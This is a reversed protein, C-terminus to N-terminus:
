AERVLVPQVDYDSHGAVEPSAADLARLAAEDSLAVDIDHSVREADFQPVDAGTLTMSKVATLLQLLQAIQGVPSGDQQKQAQLMRLESEAAALKRATEARAQNAAALQQAATDGRAKAQAFRKENAITLANLKREFALEAELKATAAAARARSDAQQQMEAVIRATEAKAAALAAKGLKAAEKERAKAEKIRRDAEKKQAAEREKQAKRDAEAQTGFPDTLNLPNFSFGLEGALGRLWDSEVAQKILLGGAMGAAGEAARKALPAFLKWM